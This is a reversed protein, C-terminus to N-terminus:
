LEQQFVHDIDSVEGVCFIYNRVTMSGITKTRVNDFALNAWACSATYEYTQPCKCVCASLTTIYWTEDGYTSGNACQSFNGSFGIRDMTFCIKVTDGLKNVRPVCVFSV